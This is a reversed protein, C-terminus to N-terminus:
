LAQILKPFGTPEPQDVVETIPEPNVAAQLGTRAVGAHATANKGKSTAPPHPNASANAGDRPPIVTLSPKSARPQKKKNKEKKHSM